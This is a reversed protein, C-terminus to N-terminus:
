KDESEILEGNVTDFWIQNCKINSVPSCIGVSDKTAYSGDLLQIVTMPYYHLIHRVADLKKGLYKHANEPTLYM